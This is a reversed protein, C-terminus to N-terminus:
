LKAMARLEKVNINKLLEKEIDRLEQIREQKEDASMMDSPANTVQSIARRIKSLQDSVKETTKALGLRAINKENEIFEELGQPSRVKIDNYTAKTKAVEDRLEYFDNKLANETTKGVFGGTGPVAAVMDRISVAPRDVEMDSHLMFNTTYLFLGGVSGFMGRIVHDAMMPSVGANGLLKSFESTSDNFQREAEKQKEFFGVIPKGQFFDYNVAVELAPKIAQPVPMPSAVANVLADSISKRAKKPDSLGNDTILHYAHESIVKPMLFLDPRLPIRLGTGPIVLVRDRIATPTDQYDEDDAVLMAYLVSMAMLGGSMTALTKLAEKRDGPSIGVGSVTKMAVRQVSMYAYFFPVVQGLLNIMKSSGRRRFNIIDFAKELAEAKSLGQQMSAEYVAQRIANDAAMAIHSLMEVGKGVKTKPPKLGAAIEVDQRAVAASFDRM